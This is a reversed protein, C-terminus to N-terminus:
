RLRRLVVRGGCAKAARRAAGEDPLVTVLVNWSNIVLYCSM